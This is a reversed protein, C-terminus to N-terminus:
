YSIELATQQPSEIGALQMQNGLDNKQSWEEDARWERLAEQFDYHSLQLYYKAEKLSVNTKQAFNQISDREANCEAEEEEMVPSPQGSRLPIRLEKLFQIKKTSLHNLKMVARQTVHYRLCIGELTDSSKIRHHFYCSTNPSSVEDDGDVPEGLSDRGSVLLLEWEGNPLAKWDYGLPPPPLASGVSNEAVDSSSLPSYSTVYIPAVQTLSDVYRQEWSHSQDWLNMAKIFDYSHASLFEDAEAESSSTESVFRQLIVSREDSQIKSVPFGIKVPIRLHPPLPPLTVTLGGGNCQVLSHVSCGYHECISQLTDGEMVIHEVIGEYRLCASEDARGSGGGCCSSRTIKEDPIKRLRWRGSDLAWYHLYPPRSLSNPQLSLEANGLAWTFGTSRSSSMRACM